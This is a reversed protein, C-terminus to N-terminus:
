SACSHSSGPVATRVLWGARSWHSGTENSHSKCWPYPLLKELSLAVKGRVPRVAPGGVDVKARSGRDGRAKSRPVHVSNFPAGTPRGCPNVPILTTISLPLASSNPPGPTSRPGCAGHAKKHPRPGATPTDPVVRRNCVMFNLTSNPSGRSACANHAITSMNTSRLLLHSSRDIQRPLSGISSIGGPHEKGDSDKALSIKVSKSDVVPHRPESMRAEPITRTRRMDTLLALSTRGCAFTRRSCTLLPWRRNGVGRRAHYPQAASRSGPRPFDERSM